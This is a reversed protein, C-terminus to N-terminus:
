AKSAEAERKYPEFAEKAAQEAWECGILGWCSGEEVEEWTTMEAEGEPDEKPVWTVSREIVYGYVDGEAWARYEQIESEIVKEPEWTSEAAKDPMLYWLAWAGDCPRDEVVTAGHRMKAWRIFLRESDPRTSFYDWGYQLPGGNEDVSIYNQQAPTIVNALHDYDKRPNVSGSDQDIVLRVRYKGATELVDDM